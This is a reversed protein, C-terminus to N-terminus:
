EGLRELLEKAVDAYMKYAEKDHSDSLTLGLAEWRPVRKRMYIRNKFFIDENGKFVEKAANRVIKDVSSRRFVMYLLVGILKFDAQYDKKLQTIEKVTKKIGDLSFSQTQFVLIICDSALVANNVLPSMTPPVDILVYDYDDKIEKLEVKLVLNRKMKPYTILKENWRAMSWDSPILDLNDAVHCVSQKLSGRELSELLPREPSSKVHYTREIFTTASAQADLDVVLVKKGHKSLYDALLVSVTTKGVGGKFNYLLLTTM